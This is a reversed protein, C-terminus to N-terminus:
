PRRYRLPSAFAPSTTLRRLHMEDRRKARRAEEDPLPMSMWTGEGKEFAKPGAGTYVWREIALRGDRFIVDERQRRVPDPTAVSRQRLTILLEGGALRVLDAVSERSEQIRLSEFLVARLHPDGDVYAFLWLGDPGTVLKASAKADPNKTRYFLPIDIKGVVEAAVTRAAQSPLAGKGEPAEPAFAAEPGPFLDARSSFPDVKARLTLPLAGATSTAASPRPARPRAAPATPFSPRPAAERVVLKVPVDVRTKPAVDRRVGARSGLFALLSSHLVASVVILAAMKGARRKGTM